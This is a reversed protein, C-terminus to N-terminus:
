WVVFEKVDDFQGTEGKEELQKLLKQADERLETMLIAYGDDTKHLIDVACYCGEYSCAAECINETGNNLCEQTRELMAKIDLKEDPTYATVETYPGFLGMALDGVENGATFRAQTSADIVQLEPKYTGLWLCKPCKRFTTYKSKTLTPM